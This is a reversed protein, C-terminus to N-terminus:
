VLVQDFRHRRHMYNLERTRLPVLAGYIDEAKEEETEEKKEEKKEEKEEKEEM